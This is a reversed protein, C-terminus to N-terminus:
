CLEVSKEFSEFHPCNFVPARYCNAPATHIHIKMHIIGNNMFKAVQPYQGSFLDRFKTLVCRM